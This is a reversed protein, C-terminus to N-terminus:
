CIHFWLNCSEMAIPQLYKSLAVEAEHYPPDIGRSVKCRWVGADKVEVSNITLHYEGKSHDGTIECNSYEPIVDLGSAVLVFTTSDTFHHWEPLLQPDLGDFACTLTITENLSTCVGEPIEKWTVTGKVLPLEVMVLVACFSITLIVSTSEMIM